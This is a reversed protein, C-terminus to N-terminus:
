FLTQPYSLDEIISLKHRFFTWNDDGINRGNINVFNEIATDYLFEAKANEKSPFAKGSSLIERGGLKCQHEKKGASQRVQGCTGRHIKTGM